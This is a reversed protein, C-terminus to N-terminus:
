SSRASPASVDEVPAAVEVRAGLGRLHALDADPTASDVVVVDFDQIRGFSHLARRRFKTHDLLLLRTQAAAIMAWKVDAVDEYPHFCHGDESLGSASIACYDARIRGVAGTAWNGMLSEAWPQFEGGTVILRFGARREVTGAVLMSNTIVTVPVCDDLAQVLWVGSTSDDLMISSGPRILRAAAAAVEQKAQVNQNLRFSAGAEHLGTAMASVQGRQRLVVGADQLAALDRYVTMPSVGTAQVIDDVAVTGQKVVLDAITVRRRRQDDASGRGTRGTSM